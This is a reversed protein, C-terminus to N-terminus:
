ETPCPAGNDAWTSFALVFDDHSIPPTTRTEGNARKGPNWSWLILPETAIHHLTDALERNGNRSKDKLRACLEPATLPVGPSSELAMSAPALAWMSEGPRSPDEVGPIGTTEDNSPGHCMTCREFPAGMGIKVRAGTKEATEVAVTEGRVVSYYHPHRDDGQRPYDQPFLGMLPPLKSSVVPHCNMCRPSTLVSYVAQWEKTGGSSPQRPAACSQLADPSGCKFVDTRLTEALLRVDDDNMVDPYLHPMPPPVSMLFRKLLEPDALQSQRAIPPGSGGVLPNGHCQACVQRYLMGGASVGGAAAPALRDLTVVTPPDAGGLGYVVVRLAGAVTSPNESSGGVAAAIYQAGGASYSILGNNLAGGADIRRLVTGDKANFVFLDGHSDGGFLLGSKTPVLGALAQSDTHYRWVIAGTEGDLAAIWGKPAQRKAASPWDKIPNGGGEAKKDKIYWTCHDAVGVFLMRLGPHYAAGNYMAGGQVGPCVRKWTDDVPVSDNELTEVPTNFVVARATRDIGHVRGDKGAIAVLDRGSAGRYLTPPSALDWDHEDHPVLQYHWNLRGTAADVSIVSNTTAAGAIDNPTVDRNWDPFPNSVGAFVEGTTPDLSYSSWLGGGANFGFTTNFRWFEKGSTADIAMLRGAIGAESVGIGIFVKGQWAIPASSFNESQEPNAAQVDWLVKGSAADFAIVRGDHTGRFVKGDMYGLGRSNSGYPAQNFDLVHRWRVACTAADLAVTQRNTAVFLTGGVMLLGSTFVVPQNLQVECVERLGVVNEPTIQDLDVYRQASYDKNMTFWDDAARAADTWGAALLPAVLLGAIFRISITRATSSSRLGRESNM